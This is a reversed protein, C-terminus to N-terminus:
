ESKPNESKNLLEIIEDLRNRVSPYSLSMSKAMEKLSGSNKVFEVIFTQVDKPLAALLPLEFSGEVKTQCRECQLASVKLAADCSPCHVPLRM